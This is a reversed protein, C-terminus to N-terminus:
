ACFWVVYVCYFAGDCSPFVSARGFVGAVGSVENIQDSALFTTDLIHTFCVSCEFLSHAFVLSIDPSLFKPSGSSCVVVEWSVGQFIHVHLYDEDQMFFRVRM